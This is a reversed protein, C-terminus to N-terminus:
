EGQETGWVVDEIENGIVRGDEEHLRQQSLATKGGKFGETGTCQEGLGFVVRGQSGVGTVVATCKLVALRSEDDVIVAPDGAWKYWAVSM